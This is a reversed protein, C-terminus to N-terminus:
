ECVGIWKVKCGYIWLGLVDNGFGVLGNGNNNNNTTTNSRYQRRVRVLWLLLWFLM